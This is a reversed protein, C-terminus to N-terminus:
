RLGKGAVDVVGTALNVLRAYPAAAPHEIALLGNRVRCSLEYMVAQIESESLDDRESLGMEDMVQGLVPNDLHTGFYSLFMLFDQIPYRQESM